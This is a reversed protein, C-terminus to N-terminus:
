NTEIQGLDMFCIKPTALILEGYPSGLLTRRLFRRLQMAASMGRTTLHRRFIRRKTYLKRRAGTALRLSPDSWWFVHKVKLYLMCIYFVRESTPTSLHVRRGGLGPGLWVAPPLSLFKLVDLIIQLFVLVLPMLSSLNGVVAWLPGLSDLPCTTGVGSLFTRCSRHGRLPKLKHKRVCKLRANIEANCCWALIRDCTWSLLLWV